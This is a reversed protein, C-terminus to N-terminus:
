DQWGRTGRNTRDANTKSTGAAEVALRFFLREAYTRVHDHRDASRTKANKRHLNPCTERVGTGPRKVRDTGHRAPCAFRELRECGLWLGAYYWFLAGALSGLSGFLVVLWINLDGQQAMYGALPM